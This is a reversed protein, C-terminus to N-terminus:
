RRRACVGLLSGHHPQRIGAYPAGISVFVSRAADGQHSGDRVAAPEKRPHKRLTEYIRHRAAQSGAHPLAQKGQPPSEGRKSRSGEEGFDRPQVDPYAQQTESKKSGRLGRCGGPTEARREPDRERGQRQLEQLHPLLRLGRPPAPVEGPVGRPLRLEHRACGSRRAVDM